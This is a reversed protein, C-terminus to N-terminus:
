KSPNLYVDFNLPPNSHPSFFFCHHLLWPKKIGGCAFSSESVVSKSFVPLFIPKWQMKHYYLQPNQSDSDFIIKKANTDM